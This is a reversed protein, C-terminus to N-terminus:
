RRGSPGPQGALGAEPEVRHHYRHSPRFGLRAYLGTAPGNDEEVQLYLPPHPM